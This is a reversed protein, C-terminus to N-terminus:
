GTMMEVLPVMGKTALPVRTKGEKLLPVITEELPVRTELPVAGRAGKMDLSVMMELIMSDMEIAEDEGVGEGATTM